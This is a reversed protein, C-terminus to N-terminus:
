LPWPKPIITIMFHCFQNGSVIESHIMLKPTLTDEVHALRPNAPDLDIKHLPIDTITSFMRKRPFGFDTSM